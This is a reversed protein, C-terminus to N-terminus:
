AVIKRDLQNHVSGRNSGRHTIMFEAIRVNELKILQQLCLMVIMLIQTLNLSPEEENSSSSSDISSSSSGTESM